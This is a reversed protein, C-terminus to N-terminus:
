KNFGMIKNVVEKYLEPHHKRIYTKFAHDQINQKKRKECAAQLTYCTEELAKIRKMLKSETGM